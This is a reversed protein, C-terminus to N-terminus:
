PQMGKVRVEYIAYVGDQYVPVLYEANSPDWGGLERERPGHFVYDLGFGRLLMQRWGDDTARDFFQQLAEQKEANHLTEPGHGAFVRLDTWAPIVNGVQFSALVTQDPQAHDALWKLATIEAAPRYIPTTRQHIPGLNGLVLLLNSLSLIAVYATLAWRRKRFWTVLGVAALLALPVQAAAIM